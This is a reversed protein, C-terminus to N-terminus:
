ADGGSKHTRYRKGAWVGGKPRELEAYAACLDFLSCARCVPALTNEPQDDLIFSDDDRCAPDTDRMAQTLRVYADTARSM